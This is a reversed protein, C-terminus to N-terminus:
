KPNRLFFYYVGGLVAAGGIAYVTTMGGPVNRALMLRADELQRQLDQIMGAQVTKTDQGILSRLAEAQQEQLTQQLAKDAERAIRDIEEQSLGIDSALDRLPQDIYQNITEQPNWINDTFWNGMQRSNYNLGAIPHYHKHM